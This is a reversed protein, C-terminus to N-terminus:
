FKLNKYFFFIASNAIKQGVDSEQRLQASGPISGQDVAYSLVVEVLLGFM